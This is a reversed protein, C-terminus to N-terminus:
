DFCKVSWLLVNEGCLKMLLVKAPLLSKDKCFSIIQCLTEPSHCIGSCTLCLSFSLTQDFVVVVVVVFVLLSLSLVPLFVLWGQTNMLLVFFFQAADKELLTSFLFVCALELDKRCPPTSRMGSKEAPPALIVVFHFNRTTAQLM